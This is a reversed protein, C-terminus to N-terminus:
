VRKFTFVHQAFVAFLTPNFLHFHPPSVHPRNQHGMFWKIHPHESCIRAMNAVCM